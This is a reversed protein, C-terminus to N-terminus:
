GSMRRKATASPPARVGCGSMGGLCPECQVKPWSPGMGPSACSHLVHCVAPGPTVPAKEAMQMCVAIASEASLVPEGRTTPRMWADTEPVAMSSHDGGSASAM